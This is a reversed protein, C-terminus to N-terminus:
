EESITKGTNIYINFITERCKHLGLYHFHTKPAFYHIYFTSKFLKRQFFQLYQTAAMYFSSTPRVHEILLKPRWKIYDFDSDNSGGILNRNNIANQKEVM